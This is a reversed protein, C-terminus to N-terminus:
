VDAKVVLVFELILMILILVNMLVNGKLFIYFKRVLYAHYVNM